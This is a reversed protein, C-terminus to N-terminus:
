PTFFDMSHGLFYFPSDLWCLMQSSTPPRRDPSLAMAQTMTQIKLILQM